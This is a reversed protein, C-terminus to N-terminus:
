PFTRHVDEVPHNAPPCSPAVQIVILIPLLGNLSPEIGSEASKCIRHRVFTSSFGEEAWNPRLISQRGRM